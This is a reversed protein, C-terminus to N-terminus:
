TKAIGNGTSCYIEMAIRYSGIQVRLGKEEKDTVGMGWDWRAVMLVSEMDM